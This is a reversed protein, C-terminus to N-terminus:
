SSFKGSNSLIQWFTVFAVRPDTALFQNEGSASMRLNPTLVM